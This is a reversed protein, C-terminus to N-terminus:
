GSLPEFIGLDAPPGVYIYVECRLLINNFISLWSLTFYCESCYCCIGIAIATKDYSIWVTVLM